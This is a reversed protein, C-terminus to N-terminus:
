SEVGEPEFGPGHLGFPFIRGDLAAPGFGEIPQPEVKVPPTNV